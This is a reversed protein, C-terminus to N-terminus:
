KAAVQAIPTRATTASTSATSSLVLYSQLLLIMGIAGLKGPSIQVEYRIRDLLVVAVQLMVIWGLTVVSLEAVQLVSGYLWFLVVFVLAGFAFWSFSHSSSWNKAAIAGVLDLGALLIAAILLVVPAPLREPLQLMPVGTAMRGAVDM